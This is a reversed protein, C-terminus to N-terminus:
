IRFWSFAQDRGKKENEELEEKIKAELLKRLEVKFYQVFQEVWVVNLFDMMERYYFFRENMSHIAGLIEHDNFRTKVVEVHVYQEHVDIAAVFDAQEIAKRGIIRYLGNRLTEHDPRYHHRHLDDQDYIIIRM